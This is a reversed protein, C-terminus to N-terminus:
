KRVLAERVKNLSLQNEQRIEIKEYDPKVCNASSWSLGHLLRITGKVNMDRIWHASCVIAKPLINYFHEVAQINGHYEGLRM